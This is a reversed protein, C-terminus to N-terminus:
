AQVQTIIAKIEAVGPVRGSVKVKGDVVLAPTMMVGLEMIERLDTVKIIDAGLGLETVAQETVQLLKECKQCGSGLVQIKLM